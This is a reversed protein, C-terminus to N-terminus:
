EEIPKEKPTSKAFKKALKQEMKYLEKSFKEAKVQKVVKDNEYFKWIGVKVNNKYNGEYMKKGNGDFYIAIGEFMDNVYQHQDIQKGNEAFTKAIGNKKGESYNIEEALKSSKYFVKRVGNLKGNKYNELTMIDKSEQHYYKWQGEFLKNKVVGESVKNGKQDFFITYCSGDNKSFDRTAIVTGAKTDDFYKFTGVEKGHEFTGEYRPRKSEEHVGKWFGHRLGQEDFQNLKDQASVLNALVLFTIFILKNM